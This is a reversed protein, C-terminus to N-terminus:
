SCRRNQSPPGFSCILRLRGSRLVHLWACALRPVSVHDVSNAMRRGALARFRPNGKRIVFPPAPRRRLFNFSRAQRGLHHLPAHDGGLPLAPEKRLSAIGGCSGSSTFGVFLCVFQLAPDDRLDARPLRFVVCAHAVRHKISSGTRRAKHGKNQGGRARVPSNAHSAQTRNM